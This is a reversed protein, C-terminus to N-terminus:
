GSADGHCPPGLTPRPCPKAPPLVQPPDDAYETLKDMLREADKFGTWTKVLQGTLPDIVGIHPLEQSQLASSCGFSLMARRRENASAGVILTPLRQTGACVKLYYRCYKGGEPSDLYQQWFLFSGVFACPGSFSKPTQHPPPPTHPPPHSPSSPHPPLPSPPFALPALDPLPDLPTIIDPPAPARVFFIIQTRGDGGM